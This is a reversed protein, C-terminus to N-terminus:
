RPRQLVDLLQKETEKLEGAEKVLREIEGKWKAESSALQTNQMKLAETLEEFEQVKQTLTENDKAMERTQQILSSYEGKLRQKDGSLQEVQLELEKIKGQKRTCEAETADYLDIM